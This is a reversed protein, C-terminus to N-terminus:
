TCMQYFPEATRQEMPTSRTMWWSVQVCGESYSFVPSLHIVNTMRHGTMVTRCMWALVECECLEDWRWFRMLGRSLRPLCTPDTNYIGNCLLPLQPRPFSSAVQWNIGTLLLSPGSGLNETHCEELQWAGRPNCQWQGRQQLLQSFCGM